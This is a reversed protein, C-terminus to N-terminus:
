YVYHHYDYDYNYDYLHYYWARSMKPSDLARWQRVLSLSRTGRTSTRQQIDGAKKGPIETQFMNFRIADRHEACERQGFDRQDGRIGETLCAPVLFGESPWLGGAVRRPRAGGQLPRGRPGPAAAPLRAALCGPLWLWIETSLNQIKLPISELLIKIELPQIRMDLLPKGSLKLWHIKAPTIKTPLSPMPRRAALRGPLRAAM